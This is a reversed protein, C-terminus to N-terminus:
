KEKIVRPYLHALLSLKRFIHGGKFFSQIPKKLKQKEQNSLRSYGQLIHVASFPFQQSLERLTKAKSTLILKFILEFFEKRQDDDLSLLWAQMDKQFDLAQHTMRDSLQFRDAEVKWSFADHQMFGIQSSQIISTNVPTELFLGIVSEHPIYSKIKSLSALYGPEFVDDRHLGPADFSYVEHIRHRIMARTFSLAHIALHGGKSHGGMRIKGSLSQAAQTLYRRAHYHSPIRKQFSLAADEKWGALTSDTGRIAVFHDHEHLSITIASFQQAEEEAVFNVYGSLWLSGYRRTGKLRKILSPLKRYSTDMIGSFAFTNKDLLSLAISEFTCGGLGVSHPVLQRFDLYSLESFILADVETCPREEFSEHGYRDIYGLINNM